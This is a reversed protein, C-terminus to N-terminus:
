NLLDLYRFFPEFPLEPNDEAEYLPQNIKYVAKWLEFTVPIQPRYKPQIEYTSKTPRKIVNVEEAFAIFREMTRKVNENYGYKNSLPKVLLEKTIVDQLRFLKSMEIAVDYCFSYRACLLAFCIYLAEGQINSARILEDRNKNIFETLEPNNLSATIHLMSRYRAYDGSFYGALLEIVRHPEIHSEPLYEKVAEVFASAPVRQKFGIKKEPTM